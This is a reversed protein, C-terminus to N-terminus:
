IKVELKRISLQQKCKEIFDKSGFQLHVAQPGNIFEIYNHGFIIDSRSCYKSQIKKAIEDHSSPGTVSKFKQPNSQDELYWKRILAAYDKYPGNKSNPIHNNIKAIYHDVLDKGITKCLEDYEGAKLKVYQGHSTLPPEPKKIPPSPDHARAREREEKNEVKSEIILVPPVGSPNKDMAPNSKQGVGMPNKDLGSKSQVKDIYKNILARIVRKRGDFSVDEILGLHRLNTLAKSVTNEQAGRLRKGLFENSAYCGGHDSCYLSDVTALLIMEFLSLEEFALIEAPIFIGTFRSSQNISNTHAHITSTM